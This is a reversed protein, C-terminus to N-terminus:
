GSFTNQQILLKMQAKVELFELMQIDSRDPRTIEWHVQVFALGEGGALM